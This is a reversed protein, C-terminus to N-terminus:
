NSKDQKIETSVGLSIKADRHYKHHHNQSSFEVQVMNCQEKCEEHSRGSEEDQFLSLSLRRRGLVLHIM